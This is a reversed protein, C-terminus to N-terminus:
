NPPNYGDDNHVTAESLILARVSDMKRLSNLEDVYKQCQELNNWRRFRTRIGYKPIADPSPPDWYGDEDFNTYGADVYPQLVKQTDAAVSYIDKPIENFNWVLRHYVTM